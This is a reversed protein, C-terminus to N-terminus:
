GADRFRFDVEYDFSLIDGDTPIRIITKVRWSAGHDYSQDCMIRAIEEVINAASNEDETYVTFRYAFRDPLPNYFVHVGDATLRLNTPITQDDPIFFEINMKAVWETRKDYNDSRDNNNGDLLHLKDMIAVIGMALVM